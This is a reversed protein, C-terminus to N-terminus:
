SSNIVQKTPLFATFSTIVGWNWPRINDRIILRLDDVSIKVAIEGTQLEMAKDPFVALRLDGDGDVQTSPAM